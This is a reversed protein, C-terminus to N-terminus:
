FESYDSRCGTSQLGLLGGLGRQNCNVIEVKSALVITRRGEGFRFGVTMNVKMGVALGIMLNIILGVAGVVGIVKIVGIVNVVGVLHRVGIMCVAMCM